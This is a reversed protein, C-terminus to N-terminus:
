KIILYTVEMDSSTPSQKREIMNGVARFMHPVQREFMKREAEQAKKCIQWPEKGTTM